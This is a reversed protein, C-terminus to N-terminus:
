LLIEGYCRDPPNQPASIIKNVSIQIRVMVDDNPTAESQDISSINARTPHFQILM